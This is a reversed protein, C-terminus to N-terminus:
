ARERASTMMLKVRNVQNVESAGPDYDIAIINSEPYSERIAKMVGKGTIHNPLCGFPQICVINPAGEHILEVMEGTLLWGEGYHHGLSIIESAFDEVDEIHFMETFHTSARLARRVPRRYFEVLSVGLNSLAAMAKSTGLLDAKHTANRFCYLFFDALEPVVVEAGEAELLAQLNNNAEPLYKVLIEGVIGAKPKVINRRPIQDFDRVCARVLDGYGKIRPKIVFDSFTRIWKEKVRDTEGTRVEYPRTANSCRMIVDGAVIAIVGRNVLGPTIQLGPSTEIGQVSLAIVPIQPQGMDKLAKRIYGVYNSARCAGGTQTMLLAVKDPDYKGSDLAEMMQGVVTISPYCSDNNVYKLGENITHQDVKDLFAMHYGLSEMGAALIRFHDPAMAPVLITYDKRMERTFTVKKPAYSDMPKKLTLGAKRANDIAQILSRIRIKVAGLNSVEDIKLVTYIRGRAELIEQVQDTTVADLGCGFSNLQILELDEHDAVFEAARYLRAHYVWQDLVRLDERIDGAKMAISDESLVALGMGNILEPIGHNIENDVHYPRGALVIGRGKHSKIWDLALEGERLIDSRYNAQETWAADLARRIKDPPLAYAKRGVEFSTFVEVLRDALAKKDKFSLFPYLYTVEKKKLADVNNRIVEPFGCVVPCNVQNRSQDFQKNEYFISPYWILPVGEEVLAEIHGNVMKGPYCVTESSISGLGKDYIERSSRPSLKVPFGLRTFFTHWLPYNEYINLVRPIGVTPLAAGEEPLSSYYHFLRDYKYAYLNPLDNKERQIGAGRECRNGSIYRSGDSFINITLACNNTCRGCRASKQRYHFAALDEDSLLTSKGTSREKAILAMGMAGMLGAISPRTAKRGTIKEFARLIADGYFTGGQVVLHDGLKEPDRVKIVKQIANKIVSYCLGAAIDEVSAGEKQAQKVKSNMFVTCRSGLDAPEKSQIAKQQFEKVDLGVSAAFTSLFSGCGSSCSENLQISDIVGERIHMAKMDQGGIDLIFDVNPNFYSAARYHAITEVEGLDVSLAAKIFDEGYGCIGSQAIWAHPGMLAYIARINEIVHELPKGKNSAYSTFLVQDDKGLLVVKSTTSGADIGLYTPGSYSALDEERLDGSQHDRVFDRYEEESSFLPDLTKKEIAVVREKELRHLIEGLGTEEAEERAMLAAGLAVFLQADEPITFTNGEPGLTEKFRDRLSDMFHLPGGLFTIRGQIPRGCALNSITQNVVSQFVSMAIDEKSAGDNLLAQVDTKAFVGCRSAIPYIKGYGRAMRNIGGADTDLLNAMQDIFAGTGGACISNMRQEINGDLYTIKSDEGGLEIIVDTDPIYTRIARTEAIVEQVFPIGLLEELIMGGSGTVAMRVPVEGVTERLEVLVEQVTRKVDSKHRRYVSFVPEGSEDVAVVKVTTSGVDLGIHLHM